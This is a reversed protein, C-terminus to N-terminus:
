FTVYENLMNAIIIELEVFTHAIRDPNEALLQECSSGGWTIGITRVEALKGMQMDYITDGIMLTDKRDTPIEEWARYIGEPNPKYQDVNDSGIVVEMLDLLDVAALNRLLAKSAKNSVVGLRHGNGKLEELSERALDYPELLLQEYKEYIEWFAAMFTAMEKESLSNNLYGTFKVIHPKGRDNQLQALTPAPYGFQEFVDMAAMESIKSTEALTGDFDFLLLGM